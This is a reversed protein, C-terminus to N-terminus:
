EIRFRQIREFREIEDSLMKYIVVSFTMSIIIIILLYWPTLKLRASHFM